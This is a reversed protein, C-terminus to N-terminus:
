GFVQRLAGRTPIPRPPDPDLRLEESREGLDLSGIRQPVGDVPFESKGLQPDRARNGRQLLARSRGRELGPDGLEERLAAEGSAGDFPQIAGSGRGDELSQHVFFEGMRLGMTRLAEDATELGGQRRASEFPPQRPPSPSSRTGTQTAEARSRRRECGAEEQEQHQAVPPTWPTM